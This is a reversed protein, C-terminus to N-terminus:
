FQNIWDDWSGSEGSYPKPLLVSKRAMRSYLLVLVFVILAQDSELM